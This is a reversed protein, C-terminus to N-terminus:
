DSLTIDNAGQVIKVGASAGLRTAGAEIMKRADEFTKIGGSAKVGMGADAVVSSMLAVDGVTAGGSSFGTSTKVYDARARRAHSCARQKEEDTLLATEIIVKSLASGDECAEVISRIDNYVLEDDGSKLAGINIVMDIEEAGDRIARRAEMAKTEPMHAGLPFGVVTCVKVDTDELKKRALPVYTPNICVSAFNYERAESCLQRIEQETAEPKLLTHDIYAALDKPVEGDGLTCSIRDAGGEILQRVQQPAKVACQGCNDCLLGTSCAAPGRAPFPEESGMLERIRGAIRVLDENSFESLKDGGNSSAPVTGAVPAGRKEEDDMDDIMRVRRLHREVSCDTTVFASAIQRALNPGILGAGLSLVNANNHERANKATSLDYCLAARVGRVKNAVMASGIGAGDVIIGFGAEGTSVKQAVAEAFVPYDVSDVSDTGCDIVTHGEALLFSKLEEKLPFGGHDAGLAITAKKRSTM